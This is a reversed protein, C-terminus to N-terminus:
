PHNLRWFSTPCILPEQLILYTMSIGSTKSTLSLSSHKSCKPALRPDQSRSKSHDRALMKTENLNNERNCLSFTHGLLSKFTGERASTIRMETRKSTKPFNM